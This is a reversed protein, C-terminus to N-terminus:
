ISCKGQPLPLATALQSVSRNQQHRTTKIQNILLNRHHIFYFYNMWNGSILIKYWNMRAVIIITSFNVQPSFQRQTWSSPQQRSKSEQLQLSSIDQVSCKREPLVNSYCTSISIQKSTEQQKLRIILSIGHQIFCFYDM